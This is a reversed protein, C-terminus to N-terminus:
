CFERKGVYCGFYFVEKDIYRHFKGERDLMETVGSVM